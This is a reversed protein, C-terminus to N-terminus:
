SVSPGCLLSRKAFQLYDAQVSTLQDRYYRKEEKLPFCAEGYDERHMEDARKIAHEGFLLVANKRTM